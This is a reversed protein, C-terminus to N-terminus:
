LCVDEMLAALVRIGQAYSRLSLRENTGHVGAHVEDANGMFPTCRLCVPCISEFQRADTASVTLSPVFVVDRFYRGMAAALRRYGYSGPASAASADNAQLFRLAVRPDDVARRCHELVEAATHGAAIRFNVVASMNQPLVNCSASGGRIMTPAATTTVLPFLAERSLCCAAIADANADPDRALTRLPEETIYPALVRFTERTVPALEAPFPSDAIRAVARALRGLSTGGFPNSSHGGVSRVSLELDAYGKEMLDIASLFVGPAGFPAGSRIRGGGEDMLFELTVGRSALLGAVAAAGTNYTEEDEGFALYVTRGFVADRRLLLEAAELLGFVQEKIDLSGRGWLYGDAIAGSFPPHVWDGETGPVVPVVDQHSMFLCPQRAADRGPLTILVSHGVTEFSGAAMVAPFSRRMLAQLAGFAAYDGGDNVTRCRIAASLRRAAAAIDLEPWEDERIFFESVDRM